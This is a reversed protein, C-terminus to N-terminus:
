RMGSASSFRQRAQQAKAAWARRIVGMQSEVGYANHSDLVPGGNNLRDLRCGKMSLILDYEQGTRWDFRPVKAGAYWVADITRNDDNASAPAFEAAVAFREVSQTQEVLQESGVDAAAIVEAPAATEQVETIENWSM